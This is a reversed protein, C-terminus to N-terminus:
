AATNSKGELRRIGILTSYHPLACLLASHNLHAPILEEIVSTPLPIYGVSHFVDHFAPLFIPFSHSFPFIVVNSQMIATCGIIQSFHFNNGFKGNGM